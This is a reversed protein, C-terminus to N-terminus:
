GGGGDDDALHVPTAAVAAGRQLVVEDFQVVDAAGCHVEGGPRHLVGGGGARGPLDGAQGTGDRRAAVVEDLLRGARAAGRVQGSGVPAAGEGHPGCGALDHEARRLGGEGNGGRGAGGDLVEHAEPGR